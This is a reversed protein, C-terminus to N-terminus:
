VMMMTKGGGGVKLLVSMVENSGNIFFLDNKQKKINLFLVRSVVM